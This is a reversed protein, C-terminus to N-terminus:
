ASEALLGLQADQVRVDHGHQQISGFHPPHCCSIEVFQIHKVACATPSHQPSEPGVMEAVFLQVFGGTEARIRTLLHRHNPCTNLFLGSLMELVANVCAALPLLLRPRGLSVHLLVTSFPLFLSSHCVHPAAAADVEPRSPHRSRRAPRM